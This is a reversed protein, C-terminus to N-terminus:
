VRGKLNWNISSINLLIRLIEHNDQSIAYITIPNDCRPFLNWNVNNQMRVCGVKGKRVTIFATTFGDNAHFNLDIGPHSVLKQTVEEHGLICSVMLATKRELLPLTLFINLVLTGHWGLHIM